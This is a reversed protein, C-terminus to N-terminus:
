LPQSGRSQELTERESASAAGRLCFDSKAANKALCGPSMNHRQPFKDVPPPRWRSQMPPCGLDRDRDGCLSGASSGGVALMLVITNQLVPIHPLMFPNLYQLPVMCKWKLVEIKLRM